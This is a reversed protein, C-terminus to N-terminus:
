TVGCLECTKPNTCNAAQWEHKCGCGAFLTIGILFASIMCVYKKM